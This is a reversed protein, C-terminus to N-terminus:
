CLGLVGAVLIAARHTNALAWDRLEPYSTDTESHRTVFRLPCDCEQLWRVRAEHTTVKVWKRLHKVFDAETVEHTIQANDM